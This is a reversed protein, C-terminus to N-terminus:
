KVVTDRHYMTHVGAKGLFEFGLGFEKVVDTIVALPGHEHVGLLRTNQAYGQCVLLSAFIRTQKKKYTGSQEKALVDVGKLGQPSLDGPM